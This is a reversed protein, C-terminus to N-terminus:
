SKPSLKVSLLVFCCFMRLVCSMDYTEKSALTRFVVEISAPNADILVILVTIINEPFNCHKMYIKAPCPWPLPSSNISIGAPLLDPLMFVKHLVTESPWIYGHGFIRIETNEELCFLM